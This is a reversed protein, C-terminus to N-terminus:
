IRFPNRSKVPRLASLSATTTLLAGVVLLATQLFM